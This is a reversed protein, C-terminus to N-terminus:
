AASSSQQILGGLIDAIRGLEEREHKGHDLLAMTEELHRHVVDVIAKEQSERLGCGVFVTALNQQLLVMGHSLKQEDVRQRESIQGITSRATTLAEAIGCINVQNDNALQLARVWADAAEVLLALHDRLRGCRDEDERPMDTALLSVSDYNFVARTQFEFIRGQHRVHNLISIDLPVDYGKESLCLSQGGSKIQVVSDLGFEAVSKRLQILVDAVGRCNSSARIFDLVVGIEAAAKLAVFATSKASRAEYRLSQNEALIRAASAVKAIVEAAQFPKVIFDEGGASFGELRAELSDQGSVFIVPVMRSSPNAKILRCLEYGDIGPMRVDSFVLDPLSEAIRALATAGDEAEVVEHGELSLLRRLNSRIEPEDDTLLVRM